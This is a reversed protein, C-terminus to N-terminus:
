GGDCVEPLEFPIPVSCYGLRSPHRPHGDRTTALCEVGRDGLLRMVTADRGRSYRRTAGWAVIVRRGEAAALIAADNEPGIPDEAELLQHPYPTRFALLNVVIIGGAGLSRAFGMCKTITMDGKVADAESPNLMIFCILPKSDDWVRTLWYRYLGCESIRADSKLFLDPM